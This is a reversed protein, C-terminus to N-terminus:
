DPSTLDASDNAFLCTVPFEAVLVASDQSLQTDFFTLKHHYSTNAAEFSQRDYTKTSFFAVKM